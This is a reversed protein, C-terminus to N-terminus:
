GLRQTRGSGAPISPPRHRLLVHLQSTPGIRGKLGTVEVLPDAIEIGLDFEALRRHFPSEAPVLAQPLPRRAQQSRKGVPLRGIQLYTVKTVSRQNVTAPTSFTCATSDAYLDVEPLNHLDSAPSHDPARGKARLCVGEFGHSRPLLRLRRGSDFRHLRSQLGSRLWEAVDGLVATCAYRARRTM